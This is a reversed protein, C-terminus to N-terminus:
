ATRAKADPLTGGGPTRSQTAVLAARVVAPDIDPVFEVGRPGDLVFSLGTRTKKDRAM